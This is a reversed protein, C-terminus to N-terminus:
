NSSPQQLRDLVLVPVSAKGAELKLGIQEQIATFLPPPADAANSPPPVKVGMGAFQSQDPTWKLVFDWRGDLGTQDVVPRDLVATQMLTVFNAMTANSVTLYGLQQFLLNPVSNADLESKKLKPGNKALALVYASMEKKDQHFTLDFRDSLLKRVMAKLQVVNPMGPTDPKAEIDFHESSVWAPANVVQKSQVDYAFFILDATTTNKTAFSANPRLTFMRGPQDPKSPKITAVEFSPNAGAAMAPLQPPPEPITWATAPTARVMVLPLTKGQGQVSGPGQKWTGAISNGDASIKGEFSNNTMESAYKLVGGEFSGSSASVGGPGQDIFYLTLKLNNPATGTIKVVLRVDQQDHLTGQWTGAIESKATAVQAQLQGRVLGSFIPIGIILTTAMGLVLKRKFNLKLGVQDELIRTIRNKLDFGAVGSVCPLPAEICFKCVSLISEAYLLADGQSRLVSEDCARERERVLAFGIGWVVPNFWFLAEVAMHLMATLNDRRRVHCMEHAVVAGLQAPTLRETIGDPLLLVPRFIGFIGPEIQTAISRVPLEGAMTMLKAAGVEARLQWWLRLWRGIILLTGCTWMAVLLLLWSTHQGGSSSVESFGQATQTASITATMGASPFPSAVSEMIPSFAPQAGVVAHWHILEGLSVLLSFPLLFKLSAVMWLAYRVRAQNRRFAVALLWVGLAFVSSQWLHNALGTLSSPPLYLLHDTM